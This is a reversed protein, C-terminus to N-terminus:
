NSNGPANSHGSIMSSPRIVSRDLGYGWAHGGLAPENWRRRMLPTGDWISWVIMLGTIDISVLWRGDPDWENSCFAVSPINHVHAQLRVHINRSIAREQGPEEEAGSEHGPDRLAFAIVDIVKKNNSVALMRRTKHMAIGWASRGVNEHFLPRPSSSSRDIEAPLVHASRQMAGVISTMHYLLVDGDDCVCALTEEDGLDDLLLRNVSHPHRYSLDGQLGSRSVPLRFSFVPRNPLTQAPFRPEFLHIRDRCAVIYLNRYQSLATQTVM